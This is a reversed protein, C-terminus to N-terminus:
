KGSEVYNLLFESLYLADEYTLYITTSSNGWQMITMSIFGHDEMNQLEIVQDDALNITAM